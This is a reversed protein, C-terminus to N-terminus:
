QRKKRILNPNFVRKGERKNLNSKFPTAPSAPSEPLSVTEASSSAEAAPARSNNEDQNDIDREGDKDEDDAILSSKSKLKNTSDGKFYYYSIPIFILFLLLISWTRVSFNLGLIPHKLGQAGETSSHSIADEEIENNDDDNNDNSFSNKGKMKGMYALSILGESKDELMKRERISDLVEDDLRYEGGAEDDTVELVDPDNPLNPSGNKFRQRRDLHTCEHLKIWTNGKDVSILDNFLLSKTKLLERIQSLSYPGNKQGNILVLIQDINKESDSSALVQTKRRQFDPVNYLPIHIDPTTFNAVKVSRPFLPNDQLFLKLDSKHYPGVIKDKLVILWLEDKSINKSEIELKSVIKLKTQKAQKPNQNTNSNDGM